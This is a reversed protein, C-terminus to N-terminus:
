FAIAQGPRYCAAGHETHKRRVVRWIRVATLSCEPPTVNPRLSRCPFSLSLSASALPSLQSALPMLWGDGLRKRTLHGDRSSIGTEDHSQRRMNVNQEAARGRNTTQERETCPINGRGGEGRGSTSPAGKGLGLLVRPLIPDGRRFIAGRKARPGGNGGPGNREGHTYTEAFASFWLALPGDGPRPVTAGQGGSAELCMKQGGSQLSRKPKAGQSRRFSLPGSPWM